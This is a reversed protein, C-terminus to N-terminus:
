HRIGKEDFYEFMWGAMLGGAMVRFQERAEVPVPEIHLDRTSTEGVREIGWNRCVTM